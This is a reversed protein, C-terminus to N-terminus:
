LTVKEFDPPKNIALLAFFRRAHVGSCRRVNFVSARFFVFAAFIALVNFRVSPAVRCFANLIPKDNSVRAQTGATQSNLDAGRTAPSKKNGPRSWPKHRPLCSEIESQGAM